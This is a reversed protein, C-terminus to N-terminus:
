LFPDFAQEGTIDIGALRHQTVVDVRRNPELFEGLDEVFRALAEHTHETWFTIGLRAVQKCHDMVQLLLLVNVQLDFGPLHGSTSHM